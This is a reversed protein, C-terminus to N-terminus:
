SLPNLLFTFFQVASIERLVVFLKKEYNLSEILGMAETQEDSFVPM